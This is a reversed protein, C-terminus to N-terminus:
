DLPKVEARRNLARGQPNDSGDSYTNEAVPRTEGLGWVEVIQSRDVGRALLYQEAAHARRQSLDLNYQESGKSDTHGEIRVKLETHNSLTRAVEDLAQKGQDTLDYRDFEFYTVPLELMMAEPSQEPWAQVPERERPQEWVGVPSPAPRAQAVTRTGIPIILSVQAVGDTFNSEGPALVSDNDFSTRAYLEGRVSVKDFDGQVGAGLKATAFNGKREGPSNPNPFNDFEEESRGYGVGMVVYPNWVRGQQRWHRRADLSLGYQSWNLDENPNLKPNQHHSELDVSWNPNIFKGVGLTYTPTNETDRSHDQINAGAGASVYWRDDFSGAREQAIVSGGFSCMMAITLLKYKM